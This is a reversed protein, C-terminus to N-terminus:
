SSSHMGFDKRLSMRMMDKNSILKLLGHIICFEPSEMHRVALGTEKQLLEPFGVLKSTGGCLWIGEEVIDSLLEPPTKALVSKVCSMIANIADSMYLCLDSVSVSIERPLGSAFDKGRLPVASQSSGSLDLRCKVEEATVEGILLDNRRRVGWIIAENLEDGAIKVTDSVVIGGLSVVAVDTFGAGTYVIMHGRPEFVPLAQSIGALLTAPFLFVEQAGCNRLLSSLMRQEVNNAGTPISCAVNPKILKFNGFFTQFVNQLEEELLTMNSVTGGSVPRVLELGPHAKGIMVHADEGFKLEIRGSGNKVRAIINPSCFISHKKRHCLRLNRTGLHLGIEAIM